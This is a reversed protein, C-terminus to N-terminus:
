HLGGYELSCEHIWFSFREDWYPSRIKKITAGRPLIMELEGRGMGSGEVDEVYLAPTGQTVYLKLVQFEIDDFKIDNISKVFNMIGNLNLSTSLFGKERYIGQIEMESLITKIVHLPLARYLITNNPLLPAASLMTQIIDLYNSFPGIKATGRLFGNIKEHVYGCYNVIAEIRFDRCSNIDKTWKAFLSSIEKENDYEIFNNCLLMLGM